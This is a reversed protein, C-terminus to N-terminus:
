GLIGGFRSFQSEKDLERKFHGNNRPKVGFNDDPCPNLKFDGRERGWYDTSPEANQPAFKNAWKTFNMSGDETKNSNTIQHVMQARGETGQAALPTLGGEHKEDITIHRSVVYGEVRDRSINSPNKSSTKPAYGAMKQHSPHLYSKQYHSPNHPRSQFEVM